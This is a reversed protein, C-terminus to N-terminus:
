FHWGRKSGPMIQPLFTQPQVPTANIMLALTPLPHERDGAPSGLLAEWKRLMISGPGRHGWHGVPLPLCILSRWGGGGLFFFVVVAQKYVTTLPLLFCFICLFFVSLQTTLNFVHSSSGDTHMCTNSYLLLYIDSPNRKQGTLNCQFVHLDNKNYALNDTQALFFCTACSVLMGRVCFHSQSIIERKTTALWLDIAVVTHM